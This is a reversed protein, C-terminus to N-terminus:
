RSTYEPPFEGMDVCSCVNLPEQLLGTYIFSCGENVDLLWHIQTWSRGGPPNLSELKWLQDKRRVVRWTSVLLPKLPSISKVSNLSCFIHLSFSDMKETLARSFSVGVTYPAWSLIRCQGDSSSTGPSNKLLSLGTPGTVRLLLGSMGGGRAQPLLGQHHIPNNVVTKGSHCSVCSSYFAM